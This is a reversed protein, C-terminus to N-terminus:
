RDIAANTAATRGTPCDLRRPARSQGEEIDPQRRQGPQSPTTGFTAPTSSTTATPTPPPPPWRPAAPRGEARRYAPSRTDGTGNNDPRGSAAASSARCASTSSCTAATPRARPQGDRQDREPQRRRQRRRRHLGANTQEVTHHRGSREPLQLQREHRHHHHGGPQREPGQFVVTVGAHPHRWTTTTPTKSCAAPSRAPTPLSAADWTRDTEGSDLVTQATKGDTVNADSDSADSHQRHHLQLGGAPPRTSSSATPAPACTPPVSVATPTPPSPAMWSNAPPTTSVCSCAPVGAEGGDQQGNGNTDLWVRDGLEASRFLGADVTTNIEGAVVTVPRQQRLTMDSDTADSGTRVPSATAPPRPWRCVYTGPDPSATPQRQWRHHHHGGPQRADKLQWPSAPSAPKQGRGAPRQRQHRGWATASSPRAALPFM